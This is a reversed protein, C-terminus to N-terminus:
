RKGNNINAIEVKEYCNREGAEIANKSKKLSKYLITAAAREKEIKSNKFTEITNKM